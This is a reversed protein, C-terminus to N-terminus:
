GVRQAAAALRGIPQSLREALALAAWTAALALMLAFAIYLIAFQFLVRGRDSELQQYLQVTATTEDLLDLLEGDVLRTVYLFRDSLARLPVLARFEDLDQDEIIVVEGDRARDVHEASPEEFDFLYSREGRARIAAAGDIVFAEALGRQVLDQGQGLVIRLDGDSLPFGSRRRAADVYNALGRADEILGDRHEQAYAEAAAVSSGLAHRVRDSFWGELAVNITVTAFAAILVTPVLAMGVFLGTLKLHLDSGASHRRRAVALNWVARGILSAVLLIYALDLGLLGRVWAGDLTVGGGGFAVLTLVVLVPGAAILGLRLWARVRRTLGWRRPPAYAMDPAQM